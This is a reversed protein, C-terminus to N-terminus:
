FDFGLGFSLRIGDDSNFVGFRASILEVADIWFGGGYSTNWRDENFVPDSALDDDVWVRGYDFGGYVGISIPLVSTKISNFHYRLDLNQYFSHKGTFRENRYGRLGNNAGISAAQYFEFDDGLTIRGKFKTALVLKENASVKHQFALLPELTGFSNSNNINDRFSAMLGAEMGLTPYTKNNQNKYHYNASYVLFEQDSFVPNDEAFLTELFRGNSRTVNVSEFGAGIKFQAGNYGKWVLSPIVQTYQQKVRNFDLDADFVSTNGRQFNPTSNGFGFFNQTFNDSTLRADINLNWKKIVNSFGGTYKFDFGETAFFFEGKLTHRLTFPNREFGNVTFANSVGIKIGDDPNFGLTPVLQNTNSKLKKYDYVNTEYNDTLKIRAKSAEEVSNKKTKYDYIVVNKGHSVTYDDNNQGGILRIKIRISKGKVVFSDEDDLGYIWLEKTLEPDYTKSHFKDSLEGGKKRYAEVLVSGDNNATIIFADDKNTGTVVGFKNIFKYYRDSIKPLNKLRKRLITKITEINEESVEKPLNSFAKIIIEETIGNQIISVQADWDSKVSNQMLAMDLPYPNISAGKVDKLDGEYKRLKRALPILRVASSLLFGDSMISFAQDRDRPMPRYITQGNEKFEVWRWQDQHRDWDGILFDFLRAKIFANEDIKISEDKHIEKFLDHTSILEDSFGFSAKDGHGESTHEEIMYLENGFDSNFDALAKQKPVYFLRPNTHYVGIADALDGIVFPAYPHSGTFIDLVLAQSATDEFQGEIYQDKFNTTQLYQIAQKRLARMVYQTGNSAELRLSKSQHGGGKRIPKLGGYLTDIDVTPAEIKQGFDKRYREGWLFKYFKGKTTEEETYISAKVTAPFPAGFDVPSKLKDPAFVQTEYVEKQDESSTFVVRSSGDKYVVLKAHGLSGYSFLGGNQNKTATATSGSGSIIQPVNDKVIYQLSHDHGSVFIAKENQQAMTILRKRLENYHTNQIDTLSLGATKRVLNNVSGLIPFPQLHSEFSYAGGHLGNSFMPHHIAIITTKGRAKKIESEIEDLFLSRTKIDCNDNITPHDNWDTLYWESDIILLVIDEGIKVKEIPCGKEPQFTNKGLNHEIFKEQRKLGKVGEDYWDRNGPIFLSEGKFNSLIAIQSNLVNEVKQRENDEKKPLGQPTNNGLFLVTSNKNATELEKQFSSFNTSTMENSILGADGIFYFTHEVEKDTTTVEKIESEKIQLQNTACSLVILYFLFLFVYKKM